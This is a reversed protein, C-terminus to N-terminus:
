FSKKQKKGRLYLLVCKHNKIVKLQEVWGYCVHGKGMILIPQEVAGLLADFTQCQIAVGFTDEPVIGSSTDGEGFISLKESSPTPISGPIHKDPIDLLQHLWTLKRWKNVDQWNEFTVMVRAIDLFLVSENCHIKIESSSCLIRLVEFRTFGYYLWLTNVCFEYIKTSNFLCDMTNASYTSWSLGIISNKVTWFLNLCDTKVIFKIRFMFFKGSRISLSMMMTQDYYFYLSLFVIIWRQNFINSHGPCQQIKTGYGFM